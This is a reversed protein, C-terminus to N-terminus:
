HLKGNAELRIFLWVQQAHQKRYDRIDDYTKMPSAKELTDSILNPKAAVARDRYSKLTHQQNSREM